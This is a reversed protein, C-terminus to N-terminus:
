VRASEPDNSQEAEAALQPLTPGALDHMGPLLTVLAAAEEPLLLMPRGEGVTVFVDPDAEEGEDAPTYWVLVKGHPQHALVKRPGSDVWRGVTGEALARKLAAVHDPALTLQEQSCWHRRRESYPVRASAFGTALPVVALVLAEFAFGAWNWSRFNAKALPRQPRVGPWPQQPRLLAGKSMRQWHDTEMRFAIYDPLREVALWPQGWRVCQDIHFYGLYGALGCAMGLAGALVPNRWHGRRVAARAGGAVLLTPLFVSMGSLYFPSLIQGCYLAAIGAATAALVALAGLFRTADCRGSPVYAARVFPQQM